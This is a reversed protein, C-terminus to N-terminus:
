CAGCDLPCKACDEWRSACVGDGCPNGEGFIACTTQEFYTNAYENAKPLYTKFGILVVAVVVMLVLMYEVMMQADNDTSNGRKIM